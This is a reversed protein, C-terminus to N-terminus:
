QCPQMLLVTWIRPFDLAYNKIQVKHNNEMRFTRSSFVRNFYKIHAEWNMSVPIDKSNGFHGQKLLNTTLVYWLSIM